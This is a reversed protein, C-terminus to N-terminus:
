PLLISSLQTCFAFSTTLQCESWYPTLSQHSKPNLTSCKAETESYANIQKKNGMSKINIHAYTRFQPLEKPLLLVFTITNRM